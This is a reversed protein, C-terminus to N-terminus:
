RFDKKQDLDLYQILPNVKLAEIARKCAPDDVPCNLRYAHSRPSISAVFSVGVGSTKSLTDLVAPATGDTPDVFGVIVQRTTPAAAPVAPGACAPAGLVSVLLLARRWGPSRM